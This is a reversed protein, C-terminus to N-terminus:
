HPVVNALRNFDIADLTPALRSADAVVRVAITHAAPAAVNSRSVLVSRSQTMPKWQGLLVLAMDEQVDGRTTSWRFASKAGTPLGLSTADHGPSESLSNVTVFINMTLDRSAEQFIAQNQEATDGEDIVKKYEDQLAAMEENMAIAKATDGKEIAAVQKNSLAEVKAMIADLRPQKRKMDAASNDAAARIKQNRAEQDDVRQYYRTYDYSWPRLEYDKCISRPVSIQDDGLIVWGEPAAPLAQKAAELVATMTGREAATTDRFGKECVGDGRATAAGLAAALTWTSITIASRVRM